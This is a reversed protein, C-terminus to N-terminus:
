KFDNKQKKIEEFFLDVCGVIYLVVGLFFNKIKKIM